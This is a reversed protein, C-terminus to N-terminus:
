FLDSLLAEKNTAYTIDEAGAMMNLFEEFRDWTDHIDFEYAHGWVYFIQPKDTKLELFEKGLEFMKDWEEHHYVTPAFEYLDTQPDFSHSSDTHRCYRVGTHARIIDAVRKDHNVGGGPYAFGVVEYGCIESLRLRDEEVQRIIEDEKIQPLFPHTLTHAAVEHGEYIYRVDQPQVKIHNVRVGNRVLAGDRGLLGSNLNFTGKMGYKNLLAILRVDQTVGDDYSFTLIKRHEM